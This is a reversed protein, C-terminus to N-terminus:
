QLLEAIKRELAKGELDKALIRNNEDLLVTHPISRVFYCKAIEKTVDAINIWTMNEEKIANMWDQPKTDLSVGIIELGADRYRKYMKCINPMSRRCPVCWSAWFDILKVRAKIGHLSVTEGGTTTGKFDPAVSGPEVQKFVAMQRAIMQGYLCSKVGEGLMDYFAKLSTYDMQSMESAIVFAVVFSDKYTKLLETQQAQLKMTEKEFQSQLAQLKMQNQQAYAARVEQEMKMKDRIIRRNIEEFQNWIKQAEGGGQVEIGADGASLIYEANELMLTVVPQQESTLIYAPVCGEVSGSFEFHGNEMVAEGLKVLGGESSTALVLSGGLSGGLSGVIKFGQQAFGVVVMSLVLLLSFLIRIMM